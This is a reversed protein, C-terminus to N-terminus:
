VSPPDHEDEIEGVIEEVIDELTILGLVNGDRDRVVAMPRRQGRFQRLVESIPRDPDVFIAPYMADDLVVMGRLSFLHFLDKTNVIGVINDLTRDYVPMRTHAGERVEELIKEESMHLELAAMRERPVLCDRVRKAPLRFVNRVYEASDRPLVGARRTEEIILGLEEVSHVMEHGSIPKFGLLRVVGNGMANMVWIFPRMVASFWLLPQAVWLSVADPRGLAVAKPALEGLIVHLFTILGFALITALTHSAVISETAPLSAFLPAVLRAMSREGVWGLALSALTIGLQTAAIADDLNDIAHKVAGAGRRRELILEEVRSHRVAVLAFEAAVFFANALVLLPVVLVGLVSWLM